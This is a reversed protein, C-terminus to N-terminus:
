CSTFMFNGFPASLYIKPHAPLELFPEWSQNLFFFFSIGLGLLVLLSGWSQFLPPVPWCSVILNSTRILSNRALLSKTVNITCDYKSVRKCVIQWVSKRERQPYLVWDVFLSYLSDVALEDSASLHVIVSIRRCNFETRVYERCSM